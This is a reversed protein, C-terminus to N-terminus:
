AFLMRVQEKIWSIQKLCVNYQYWPTLPSGSGSILNKFLDPLNFRLMDELLAQDLRANERHKILSTSSYM